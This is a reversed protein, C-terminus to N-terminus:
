RLAESTVTVRMVRAHTIGACSWRACDALNRWGASLWGNEPAGCRALFGLVSCECQLRHGAERISAQHVAM